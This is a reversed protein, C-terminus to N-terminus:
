VIDPQHRSYVEQVCQSDSHTRYNVDNLTKVITGYDKYGNGTQDAMPEINFYEFSMYSQTTYFVLVLKPFDEVGQLRLSRAMREDKGIYYSFSLIDQLRPDSAAMIYEFSLGIEPTTLYVMFAKHRQLTEIAHKELENEELKKM